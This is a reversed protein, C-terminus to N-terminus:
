VKSAVVLTRVVVIDLPYRLGNYCTQQFVTGFYTCSVITYLGRMM